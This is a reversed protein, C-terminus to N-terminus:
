ENHLTPRYHLRSHCKYNRHPQPRSLAVLSKINIGGANGLESLIPCTAGATPCSTASQFSAPTSSPASGAQDIPDCGILVIEQWRDSWVPDLYSKM